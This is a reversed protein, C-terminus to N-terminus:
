NRGARVLRVAYLGSIPAPQVDGDAFLVVWAQGIQGSVPSSTWFGDVPSLPFVEGNIAPSHCRTEIISALENRNPVRWDDHGAQVHDRATILAQEWSSKQASGSCTSGTWNQGIACRQWVLRTPRHLVTGDSQVRFDDAPTALPIAPNEEGDICQAHLPASVIVALAILVAALTRLGQCGSDINMM